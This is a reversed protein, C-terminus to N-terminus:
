RDLNLVYSWIGPGGRGFHLTVAGLFCHGYGLIWDLDLAFGFQLGQAGYDAQSVWLRSWFPWKIKTEM